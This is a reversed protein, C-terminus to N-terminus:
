RIKTSRSYRVPTAELLDTAVFFGGYTVSKIPITSRWGHWELDGQFNSYTVTDTGILAGSVDYFSFSISNYGAYLTTAWYGGFTSVPTNFEITASTAGEDDNNDSEIGVAKKGHAVGAMVLEGLHWWPFNVGPQYVVLRGGSIVANGRMIAMPPTVMNNSYLARTPLWEWSEHLSGHFPRVPTIQAHVATALLLSALFPMWVRRM